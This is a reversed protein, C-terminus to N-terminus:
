DPTTKRHFPLKVTRLFKLLPRKKRKGDGGLLECPHSCLPCLILVKGRKRRLKHVCETCLIEHCNGCRYTAPRNEHRRCMMSGDAAVVPPAPTPEDFKPIDVRVETDDVLLEVDGLRVVQGAQLIAETVAVGDLFTGNTSQCDKLLLGDNGLVIQCHSSSITPHEIAFDNDTSRGLRNVGLRLLIIQGNAGQSKLVLRAM